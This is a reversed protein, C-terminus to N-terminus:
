TAVTLDPIMALITVPLPNEQRVFVSGHDQWGSAVTADIDGTFMEPATDYSSVVDKYETLNGEDPGISIGRTNKVRLTVSPVQKRKNVSRDRDIPLSELDATYPLGICVHEGEAVTLAVMGNEVTQRPKVKGEVVIGVEAGELWELGHVETLGEGAVTCLASDLFLAGTIDTFRRTHMREIYRVTRANVTRKVVVYVRDIGDETIVAVSEFLGDTTHRHWAWVDHEPLYTFGLMVGDSRVAWVIRERGGQYAWDVLTYGDFLHQALVTMDGGSYNNSELKYKLDRVSDGNKTVFLATDNIVLPPIKSSGNFSQPKAALSSPTLAESNTGTVRWEANSTLILLDEMSLYHRITNVKREALVFEIPDDANTGGISFLDFDGTKSAWNRNVQGNTRGLLLRQQHYGVVSAYKNAAAFLNSTTGTATLTPTSFTWAAHGTRTLERLAYSPHVLTIVDASQTYGVDFLQAATYPSTIQYVLEMVTSATQIDTLGDAFSLLNPKSGDLETVDVNSGGIADILYPGYWAGSAGGIFVHKGTAWTGPVSGDIVMRMATGTDTGNSGEVTNVATETVQEGDKHVRLYGDGFELVYTQEDNFEFDILRVPEASDGAEGDFEFGARNSAGGAAHVFFNLLTKAGVHFKEIDRRAYLEPSLEGAAFSAQMQEIPTM